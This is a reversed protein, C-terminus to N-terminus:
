RDGFFKSLFYATVVTTAVSTIITILFHKWVFGWIEVFNLWRNFFFLKCKFIKKTKKYATASGFGGGGIEGIVFGKERLSQWAPVVEPKQWQFNRLETEM